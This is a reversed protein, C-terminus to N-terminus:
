SREGDNADEEPLYEYIVKDELFEDLAVISPKPLEQYDEDEVLEDFEDFEDNGYSEYEDDYGKNKVRYQKQESNIQRARRALVVVAEYLNEAKTELTRISLTKIM